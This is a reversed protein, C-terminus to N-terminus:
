TVAQTAKGTCRSTCRSCFLVAAVITLVPWRWCVRGRLKGNPAHSNSRVYASTPRSGRLATAPEPFRRVTIGRCSYVVRWYLFSEVVVFVHMLSVIRYNPHLCKLFAQEMRGCRGLSAKPRCTHCFSVSSNRWHSSTFMCMGGYTAPQAPAPVFGTPPHPAVPYAAVCAVPETFDRTSSIGRSSRLWHRVHYWMGFRVVRM